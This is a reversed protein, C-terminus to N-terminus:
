FEVIAKLNRGVLLKAATRQMETFVLGGSWPCRWSNRARLSRGHPQRLPLGKSSHADDCQRGWPEFGTRIISQFSAIVAPIQSRRLVPGSTMKRPMLQLLNLSAIPNQPGTGM